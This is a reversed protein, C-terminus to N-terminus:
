YDPFLNALAFILTALLILVNHNYEQVSKNPEEGEDLVHIKWGMGYGFYSQYYVLDATDQTVTWNM